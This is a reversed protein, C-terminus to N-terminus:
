LIMALIMLLIGGIQLGSNLYQSFKNSDYHKSTKQATAAAMLRQIRAEKDDSFTRRFISNELRALRNAAPEDPFKKGLISKELADLDYLQLNEYDTPPGAEAIRNKTNQPTYYNYQQENLNDGFQGSPMGHEGYAASDATHTASENGAAFARLRDVRENLSGENEKKYV